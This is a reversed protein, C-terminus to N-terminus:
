AAGRPGFLATGLRIMTAGEAIAIEFDATMGMSLSDWQPLRESRMEAFTAALRRFARRQREADETVRPITMLGRLCLRPLAAVDHVLEALGEVPVGAKQAERDVNVQVLVDLPPSGPPRQESLRRAIRARDVTHVWDFARAIERTKNSQIAGIFHWTLGTGSLAAIKPLAEVVYNEAFDRVGCAAVQRIADVDHTKSVAILRVERPDRGAARAARDIRDRVSSVQREISHM